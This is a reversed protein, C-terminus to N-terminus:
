YLVDIFEKLHEATGVTEEQLEKLEEKVLKHWLRVDLSAKFTSIFDKLADVKVDFGTM